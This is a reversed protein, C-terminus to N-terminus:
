YLWGCIRIKLRRTGKLDIVTRYRSNSLWVRVDGVSICICMREGDYDDIDNVTCKVM